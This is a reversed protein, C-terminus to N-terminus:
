FIPTEIIEADKIENVLHYMGNSDKLLKDCHYAELIEDLNVNKVAVGFWGSEKFSRKIQYLTDNIIIINNM